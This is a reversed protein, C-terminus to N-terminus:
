KNLLRDSLEVNLQTIDNILSVMDEKSDNSKITERLINIRKEFSECLEKNTPNLILVKSLDIIDVSM